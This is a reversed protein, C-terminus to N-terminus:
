RLKGGLDKAASSRVAESAGRAVVDSRGRYPEPQKWQFWLAVLVAVSTVIVGVCERPTMKETEM